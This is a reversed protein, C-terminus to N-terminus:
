PCEEVGCSAGLAERLRPLTNSEAEVTLTRGFGVIRVGPVASVIRRWAPDPTGTPAIRYRAM